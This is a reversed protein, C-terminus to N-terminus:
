IVISTRGTVAQPGLRGPGSARAQPGAPGLVSAQRGPGVCSPCNAMCQPISLMEICIHQCQINMHTFIYITELMNIKIYLYVYLYVHMYVYGWRDYIKDYACTSDVESHIVMREVGARPRALLGVLMCTLSGGLQGAPLVIMYMYVLM